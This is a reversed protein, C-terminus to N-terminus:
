VHVSQPTENIRCHRYISPFSSDVSGSDRNMLQGLRRQSSKLFLRRVAIGGDISFSLYQASTHIQRVTHVNIKSKQLYKRVRSKSPLRM